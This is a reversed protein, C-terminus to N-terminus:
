RCLVPREARGSCVERRVTSEEEPLTRLPTDARLRELEDGLRQGRDALPLREDPHLQDRQVRRVAAPEILCGRVQRRDPDTLHHSGDAQPPHHRRLVEPVRFTLEDAAQEAPLLPRHDVVRRHEKGYRVNGADRQGCVQSREAGGPEGGPSVTTTEAAPPATPETAPCIALSRPARTTPMAPPDCFHASSVSWSCKSAATSWRAASQRWWSSFAVGSPISTSKSFTPPSIM